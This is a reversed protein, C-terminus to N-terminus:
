RNAIGMLKEYQRDSLYCREQWEDYKERLDAVFDMEWGSIANCEAQELADEFDIAPDYDYDEITESM